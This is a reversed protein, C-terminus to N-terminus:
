IVRMMALLSNLQQQTAALLRPALLIAHPPVGNGPTGTVDKAAFERLLEEAVVAVDRASTIIAALQDEVPTAAGATQPLSENAHTLQIPITDVGEMATDPSKM